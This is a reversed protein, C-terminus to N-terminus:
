VEHPTLAHAKHHEIDGLFEGRNNLGGSETKKSHAKLTKKLAQRQGHIFYDIAGFFIVGTPSGSYNGVLLRCRRLYGQRVSYRWVAM